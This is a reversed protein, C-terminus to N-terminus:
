ILYITVKGTLSVVLAAQWFQQETIGESQAAAFPLNGAVAPLFWAFLLAVVLRRIHQSCLMSEEFGLGLFAPFNYRTPILPIEHLLNTLDANKIDSALVQTSTM